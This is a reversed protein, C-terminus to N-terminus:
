RALHLGNEIIKKQRYSENLQIEHHKKLWRTNINIMNQNTYFLLWNNKWGTKQIPEAQDFGNRLLYNKKIM